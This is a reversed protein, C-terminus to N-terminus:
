GDAFMTYIELNGDRDTVFAIQGNGVKSTTTDVRPTTQGSGATSSAGTFAAVLQVLLMAVGVSLIRASRVRGGRRFFLRAGFWIVAGLPRDLCRSHFTM